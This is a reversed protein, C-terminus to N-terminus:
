SVGMSNLMVRAMEQITQNKQKVVGNQELMKPASFEHSYGHKDCYEVFIANKFERGYASRIRMIKGINSCTEMQLKSCLAKFMEFTDSKERIFQVWTFRPFDDVCVFPM